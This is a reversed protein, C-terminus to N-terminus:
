GRNKLRVLGIQKAYIRFYDICKEGYIWVKNQWPHTLYGWSLDKAIFFYYDGDPYFELFYANYGGHRYREDKIFKSNDKLKTIRPNYRFCSHQWDLAYMYEDNGMCKIFINKILENTQKCDWYVMSKKLDYIDYPIGFDFAKTSTNISPQFSFNNFIGTWVKDSEDDSLIQWIEEQTSM